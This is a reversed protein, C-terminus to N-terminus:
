SFLVASDVSSPMTSSSTGTHKASNILGFLINGLDGDLRHKSTCFELLFLSLTIALSGLAILLRPGHADFVRGSYIGCFFVLFLNLSFIWGIQAQSYGRLQHSTFYEQFVATSNVMGFVMFLACFAGFVVSWAELGVEPYAEVSTSPPDNEEHPAIEPGEETDSRGNKPHNFTEASTELEIIERDTAHAEM